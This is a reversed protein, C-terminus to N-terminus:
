PAMDDKSFDSYFTVNIESYRNPITAAHQTAFLARSRIHMRHKTAHYAVFCLICKRLLAHFYGTKDEVTHESVYDVLHGQSRSM